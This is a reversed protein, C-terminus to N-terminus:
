RIVSMNVGLPGKLPVDISNLLMRRFLGSKEISLAPTPEIQFAIHDPSQAHLRIEPTWQM